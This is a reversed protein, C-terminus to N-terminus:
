DRVLTVQRQQRANGGNLCIVRGDQARQQELLAQLNDRGVVDSDEVENLDTALSSRKGRHVVDPGKVENLDTARSCRVERHCQARARLERHYCFPCNNKRKDSRFCGM